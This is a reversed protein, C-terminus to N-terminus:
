GGPVSDAEEDDERAGASVLCGEVELRQAVCLSSGPTEHEVVHNSIGM